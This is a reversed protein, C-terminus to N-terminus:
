AGGFFRKGYTRGSRICVSLTKIVPHHPYIYEVVPKEKQIDESKNRSVKPTIVTKNKSSKIEITNETKPQVPMTIAGELSVDHDKLINILNAIDAGYQARTRPITGMIRAEVTNLNIGSQYIRKRLYADYRIQRMSPEINAM